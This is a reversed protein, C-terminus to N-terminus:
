ISYLANTENCPVLRNESFWKGSEHMVEKNGIFRDEFADWAITGWSKDTNEYVSKWYKDTKIHSIFTTIFEFLKRHFGTLRNTYEKSIYGDKLTRKVPIINVHVSSDEINEIKFFTKFITLYDVKHTSNGVSVYVCNEHSSFEVTRISDPVRTMNHSM